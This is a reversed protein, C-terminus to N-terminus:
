GNQETPRAREHVCVRGSREGRERTGTGQVEAERVPIGEQNRAAWECEVDEVSDVRIVGFWFREM